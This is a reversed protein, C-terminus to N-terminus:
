GYIRGLISLMVRTPLLRNALGLLQNSFGVIYHPPLHRRRLLRRLAGAIQEPSMGNQESREMKSVSARIRGQYLEDGQTNKLRSATFETKVDNLLLTCTEIGFPKVELGLADCFANLGAKSVSYISQFPLPFVAGLSSIFIINGHGQRRMAPLVQRTCRIAGSLNVQIQRDIDEERAFEAAGSIGIGANNVLLDIRPSQHRISHFAARVSAPDAIDCAIWVVAGRAASSPVPCVCPGPHRSLGFVRYGEALLMHAIALGIGKSAGTVVATKQKM